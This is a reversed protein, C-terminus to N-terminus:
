DDRFFSRANQRTQFLGLISGANHLSWLGVLALPVILCTLGGLCQVPIVQMLEQTMSGITSFLAVASNHFQVFDTALSQSTSSRNTAYSALSYSYQSSASGANDTPTVLLFVGAAVLVLLLWKFKM